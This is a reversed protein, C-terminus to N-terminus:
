TMEMGRIQEESLRALVNCEIKGSETKPLERVYHVARPYGHKGYDTRVMEQLRATLPAPGLDGRPVVFAEIIEGSVAGPQRRGVVAVEAVGPAAAIISEIDFPSIRYGSAIILDDVRASFFFNCGDHRGVDGSLYWRGDATFREATKDPADVYQRFWMLPSRAMNIAIVGNVAGVEFGPMAQGMSGAQVPARLRPDWSNVVAMGIETQGWHDRVTCGLGAEAWALIDPTLPEGASSACRLPSALRVEDRKLARYVSPAWAFNTVGAAGIVRAVMVSSFPENCLVFPVGVALAGIVGDFLGYAWGPDAGNWFLDDARLHFGYKMYSTIGALAFGPLALGKPAGTTGSTYIQVFVGNAGVVEDQTAPEAADMAAELAADAILVSVDLGELKAADAAGSVVLQAGSATVRSAISPAGFATFLPVYVAGLRCLAVLLVPVLPTKGLLVGVRSGRGVGRAALVTALKRSRAALEAYSYEQRRLDGDVTVYAMRAPPHRDCLAHALCLTDSAYTARLSAIGAVIDPHARWPAEVEEIQDPM